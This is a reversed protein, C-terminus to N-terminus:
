EGFSGVPMARVVGMGYATSAGIGLVEALAVWYAQAPTPTCAIGGVVGWLGYDRDQAESHRAHHWPTMRGVLESCDDEFRPFDALELQLERARHSTALLVDRLGPQRIPQGKRKLEAPSALRVVITGASLLEQARAALDPPQDPPGDPARSSGSELTRVSVVSQPIRDDRLGATCAVQFATLFTDESAADFTVLRVAWTQGKRLTRAPTLPTDFRFRPAGKGPEFLATAVDHGLGVFLANGLVGRLLPGIFPPLELRGSSRLEIRWIRTSALM